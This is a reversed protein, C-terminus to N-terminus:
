LIVFFFASEGGKKHIRAVHHFSYTNPHNGSHTRMALCITNGGYPRLALLQNRTYNM